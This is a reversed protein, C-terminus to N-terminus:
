NAFEIVHRSSATPIMRGRTEPYPFMNAIVVFDGYEKWDKPVVKSKLTIISTGKNVKKSTTMRYITSKETNFGIMITAADGSEVTYEIEVTFENEVGDQVPASSTVNVIRIRDGTEGKARKEADQAASVILLGQFLLALGFIQVIRKM